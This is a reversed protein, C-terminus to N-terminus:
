WKVLKQFTWKQVTKGRINTIHIQLEPVTTLANPVCNREIKLYPSGKVRSNSLKSSNEIIVKNELFKM